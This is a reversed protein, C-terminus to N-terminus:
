RISTEGFWNTLTAAEQDRERFIVGISGSPNWM